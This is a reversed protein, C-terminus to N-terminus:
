AVAEGQEIEEQEAELQEIVEEPVAAPCSYEQYGITIGMM